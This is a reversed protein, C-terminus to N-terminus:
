GLQQARIARVLAAFAPSKQGRGPYYLQYRGWPRCWDALLPVLRGAALDAEVGDRLVLAIGQGDLAAATMLTLDDFILRADLRLSLPEGAPSDFEWAYLGGSSAYRYGICRHQHLEQPTAPPRRRALYGPSAVVCPMLEPGIPLAVMDQALAQPFRVGADFREAVIDVLADDARIEIRIGPHADLFAPLLPWLAVHAAHRLASIRITGAPREASGGLGDLTSGIAELAPKLTALLRLGAETPAVSRTSRTLLKVGLRGELAKMAHSLASPSMGLRAAARTFSAQEAVVAFAALDKLEDRKM